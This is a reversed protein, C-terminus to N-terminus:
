LMITSTILDSSIAMCNNLGEIIDDLGDKFSAKKPRTGVYYDFGNFIVSIPIDKPPIGCDGDKPFTIHCAPIDTKQLPSSKLQYYSACLFGFNLFIPYSYM